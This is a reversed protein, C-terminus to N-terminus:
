PQKVVKFELVAEGGVGKVVATKGDSGVVMSFSLKRALYDDDTTFAFTKGSVKPDLMMSIHEAPAGYFHVTGALGANNREIHLVIGRNRPRSPNWRAPRWNGIFAETQGADPTERIVNPLDSTITPVSFHFPEGGDEVYQGIQLVVKLAPPEAAMVSFDTFEATKFGRKTIMVIYSGYPLSVHVSGDQATKATVTQKGRFNVEADPIVAGSTDSVIATSIATHSPTPSDGQAFAITANFSLLGLLMASCNLLGRLRNTFSMMSREGNGEGPRGAGEFAWTFSGSRHDVADM